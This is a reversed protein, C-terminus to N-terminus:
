HLRRRVMLQIRLLSKNGQIMFREIVRHFTSGEYGFGQEGLILWMM